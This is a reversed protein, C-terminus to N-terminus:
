AGEGRRFASRRAARPTNPVSGPPIAVSRGRVRGAGARDLPTPLEPAQKLKKPSRPNLLHALGSIAARAMPLVAGPHNLLTRTLYASLGSGYGFMVREFDRLRRHHYHRAIAEPQYVLRWRDLIVDVFAALDEGGRARRGRGLAPDFGGFRSLVSRRFAANAGSGFAGAAFPFLAGMILLALPSTRMAYGKDFGGYQECLLQANTELEAALLLGTVCGVREDAVFPRVIADAWRADVVVDDDLFAVVEFSAARWGRNRARSTGAQDNLLYRVESRGRFREDIARATADSSSGNDVVIIELGPYGTALVAAVCATVRNPRNRTPIVVSLPQVDVDSVRRRPTSDSVHDLEAAIAVRAHEAIEDGSLGDKPILLEISARPIGRVRVLAIAWQSPTGEPNTNALDPVAATLEIELTRVPPVLSDPGLEGDSVRDPQATM